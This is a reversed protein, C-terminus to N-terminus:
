RFRSSRGRPIFRRRRAFHEMMTRPKPPPPLADYPFDPIQVRPLKRGIFREIAALYREKGLKGVAVDSSGSKPWPAPDGKAIETHTWHGNTGFKYM